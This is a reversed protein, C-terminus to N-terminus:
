FCSQLCLTGLDSLLRQNVILFTCWMRQVFDPILVTCVLAARRVFDGEYAHLFFRCPHQQQLQRLLQMLRFHRYSLRQQQLLQQTRM